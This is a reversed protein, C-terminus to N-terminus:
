GAKRQLQAALDAFEEDIHEGMCELVYDSVTMDMIRLRRWDGM